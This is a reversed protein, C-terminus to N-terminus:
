WSETLNNSAIIEKLSVNKNQFRKGSKEDKLHIANQPCLHICAMCSECRDAFSIHDEHIAINATPCVKACIACRTCANNVSYNDVLDAPSSGNSARDHMLKFIPQLLGKKPIYKKRASIDEIIADLSSEINKKPEKQLEKEMDFGLLYNDVMLLRNIYDFSKGNESAMQELNDVALGSMFGYTIVAFTYEAEWSHCAFFEKVSAPLGYSYCPYAFGIVDNKYHSIDSGLAQPISVLTGGIRKAAYLSNGTATYYFITM